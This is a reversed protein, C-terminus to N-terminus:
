ALVEAPAAVSQEDDEPPAMVEAWEASVYLAPDGERDVHVARLWGSGKVGALWSPPYHANVWVPAKGDPLSQLWEILEAVTMLPETVSCM